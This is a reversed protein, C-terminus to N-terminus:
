NLKNQSMSQCFHSNKVGSFQLDLQQEKSRLGKDVQAMIDKASKVPHAKGEEILLHNGSFSDENARGPIVLLKKGQLIGKRMTLMAGSVVPAEILVVAEALGSVIRNRQPFNQRNPPTLMPYETIVAGEREILRALDRNEYPYLHSLGSGIVALTKGTQLAGQHAATDVGKALGSVVVIGLRALDMGFSYALERGYQSAQRSGIIAVGKFQEIPWKGKVYLLVPFDSIQLLQQPYAQDTYSVLYVGEKAALELNRKWDDNEKWTTWYPLCKSKTGLITEIVKVEAELATLASGFYGILLRIKVSGLYPIQTLISLAILDDM